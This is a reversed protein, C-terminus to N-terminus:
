YRVNILDFNILNHHFEYIATINLRITFNDLSKNTAQIDVGGSFYLTSNNEGRDITIITGGITRDISTENDSVVKIQHQSTFTRVNPVVVAALIGLIAIVIITEMWTWGHQKNM